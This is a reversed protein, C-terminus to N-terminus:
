RPIPLDTASRTNRGGRGRIVAQTVLLYNESGYETLTGQVAWDLLDPSEEIIRKVRESNLNELCAFPSKGDVAYFTVRDGSIKFQGHVDVLKSGERWRGGALYGEIQGAASTLPKAAEAASDPATRAADDSDSSQPAQAAYPVTVTALVMLFAATLVTGRVNPRRQPALVYGARSM